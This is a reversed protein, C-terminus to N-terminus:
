GYAGRWRHRRLIRLGDIGVMFRRVKPDAQLGHRLRRMQPQQGGWTTGYLNGASDFTVGVFPTLGNFNPGGFDYILSERWNGGTVTALAHMRFVAGWGYVGGNFNAGFLDGDKGLTVGSPLNGDGAYQGFNYLISESWPGSPTPNLRFVIGAGIIGGENASGYLNGFRDLALSGSPGMGDTALDFAHLITEAWQSGSRTLRFVVGCGYGECGSGGGFTTNGYLNGSSDLILGARQPSSGDSTGGQFRYLVTYTWSGRGDPALEFVTGCGPGFGVECSGDGGAATAGYLNGTRYMVLESSPYSGDHGGQFTYIVTQAWGGGPNPTLVFVVGCGTQGSVVCAPNGGGITTGYFNHFQDRILGAYPIAGDAGGTFTYIVNEAVIAAASTSSFFAFALVIGSMRFVALVTRTSVRGM